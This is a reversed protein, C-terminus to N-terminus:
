FVVNVRSAWFDVGDIKRSYYFNEVHQYDLSFSLRETVALKYYVELVEENAYNGNGIGPRDFFGSYGKEHAKRHNGTLRGIQYAIGLVDDPRMWNQGSVDLGFMFSEDMDQYHRVDRDDDQRGYKGFINVGYPLSQDLSIGFGAKDLDDLNNKSNILDADKSELNGEGDFGAYEGYNKFFYVRYGGKVNETFRHNVALSGILSYRDTINDLNADSSMLAGSITAWPTELALRTGYTYGRGDLDQVYDFAGNNSIAQNLFQTTQDSVREGEDFFDPVGFKGLDIILRYGESLSLTHEYYARAIYPENRKDPDEMVDNNVMAGGQLPADVGAGSAFEINLMFYSGNIKKEVFLDATFSGTADKHAFDETDSRPVGGSDLLHDPNLKLNSSQYIMNMQGGITLGNLVSAQEHKKLWWMHKHEQVTKELREVRKNLTKYASDQGAVAIETALLLNVVLSRTKWAKKMIEVGNIKLNDNRNFRM